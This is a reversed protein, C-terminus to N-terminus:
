ALKRKYIIVAIIAFVITAIIFPLGSFIAVNAPASFAAVRNDIASQMYGWNYAVIGIYCCLSMISLCLFVLPIKKNKM